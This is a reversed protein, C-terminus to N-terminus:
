ILQTGTACGATLHIVWEGLEAGGWDHHILKQYTSGYGTSGRVNPALIGVGHALLYQYFGGYMYTPLEQAEPGGHISLVVPFRGDRSGTTAHPRYLFAAIERGDHSRYRILAPEVPTVQHLAPPMSDTLV